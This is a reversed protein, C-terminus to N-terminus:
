PLRDALSGAMSCDGNIHLENTSCGGFSLAKIEAPPEPKNRASYPIGNAKFPIGLLRGVVHMIKLKM